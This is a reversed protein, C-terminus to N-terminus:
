KIFIYFFHNHSKLQIRQSPSFAFHDSLLTAKWYHYKFINCIYKFYHNSVKKSLSHHYGIEEWEQGVLNKLGDKRKGGDVVRGERGGVLCQQSEDPMVNIIYDPGGRSGLLDLGNMAELAAQPTHQSLQQIKQPLTFYWQSIFIIYLCVLLVFINCINVFCVFVGQGDWHIHCEVRSGRPENQRGEGM